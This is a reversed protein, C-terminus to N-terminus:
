ARETGRGLTAASILRERLPAADGLWELDIQVAFLNIGALRDARVKVLDKHTCLVWDISDLSQLWDVLAGMTQQDFVAHDSLPKFAVLDAQCQRITAAFADPNGIGCFAAIRKGRLAGLSKEITTAGRFGILRRPRHASEFWALRENLEFYRERIAARREPDVADCRSLIAIEARRISSLPERLMGRPLLAGFGFPCTADIVVIELDRHLRRHQFGDDLVIVQSALEEIAIEAAKVRDPDQIHPVDPLRQELELAEDNLAAEGRGYGRSVLAVRLGAGRLQQAIFCVLPTKGTGGTTLNGVSIVPVDVRHIEARGRDYRWRRWCVAAGYAVSALRLVVRLGSASLGRRQGSMVERYGFWPKM